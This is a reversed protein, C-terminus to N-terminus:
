NDEDNIEGEPDFFPVTLNAPKKNLSDIKGLNNIKYFKDTFTVKTKEGKNRIHMVERIYFLNKNFVKYYLRSFDTSYDEDCDTEVLLAATNKMLKKDYVLLIKKTCVLGDNYKLIVIPYNSNRYYIIDGTFTSRSTFYTGNILTRHRVQTFSLDVQNFVSDFFTSYPPHM